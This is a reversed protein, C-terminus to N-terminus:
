NIRDCPIYFYHTVCINLILLLILVMLYGKWGIKKYVLNGIWWVIFWQLATFFFFFPIIVYLKYNPAPLEFFYNTAVWILGVLPDLLLTKTFKDFLYVDNPHFNIFPISTFVIGLIVISVAIICLIKWCRKINKENHASDM